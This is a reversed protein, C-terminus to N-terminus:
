DSNRPSLDHETRFFAALTGAFTQANRLQRRIIRLRVLAPTLKGFDPQPQSVLQISMQWPRHALPGLRTPDLGYFNGVDKALTKSEALGGFVWSALLSRLPLRCPTGVPPAM